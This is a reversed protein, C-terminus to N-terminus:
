PAQKPCIEPQLENVDSLFTIPLCNPYSPRSRRSMIVALATGWDQWRGPM